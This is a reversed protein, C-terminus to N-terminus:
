QPRPLRALGSSQAETKEDTCHSWDSGYHCNRNMQLIPNRTIRTNIGLPDSIGYM